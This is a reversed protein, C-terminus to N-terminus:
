EDRISEWHAKGARLMTVAHEVNGREPIANDSEAIVAMGDFAAVCMVRHQEFLEQEACRSHSGLNEVPLSEVGFIEDHRTWYDYVEEAIMARSYFSITDEDDPGAFSVTWGSCDEDDCM